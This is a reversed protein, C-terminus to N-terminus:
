GKDIVINFKKRYELEIDVQEKLEPFKEKFWKEGTIWSLYHSPIDAILKGNHAGFPIVIDRQKAM